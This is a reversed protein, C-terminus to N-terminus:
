RCLSRIGEVVRDREDDTLGPYLPISLSRRWHEEARPFEGPQDFIKHQPLFVPRKAEIGMENLRSEWDSSDGPALIVYRYWAHAGWDTPSPLTIREGLDSFSQTYFEAIKRRKELSQKFWEIQPIALAASWDSLNANWGPGPDVRGDYRCLGEVEDMLGPDHSAILGGQGACIPKTAYFSTMMLSGITGVRGNPTEVGLTQACDEVIPVGLELLPSLDIPRGYLHPVIVALTKPTIAAVAHAVDLNGDVETDCLIPAADVARISQVLAAC